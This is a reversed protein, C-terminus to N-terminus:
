STRSHAVFDRAIAATRDTSCDDVVYVADVFGPMGDLVKAIHLEENYAPVVVGVSKGRYM